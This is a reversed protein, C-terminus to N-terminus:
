EGGKAEYDKLVQEENEGHIVRDIVELQWHGPRKDQPSFVKCVGNAEQECKWPLGTLECLGETAGLDGAHRCPACITIQKM